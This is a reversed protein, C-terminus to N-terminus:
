CVANAPTTVVHYVAYTGRENEIPLRETSIDWGDERLLFIHQALRTVRYKTIAEWSTISRHEHLHNIVMQTKTM